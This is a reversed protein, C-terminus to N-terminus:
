RDRRKLAILDEACRSIWRYQPKGRAPRIETGVGDCRRCRSIIAQGGDEREAEYVFQIDHDESGHRGCCQCNPAHVGQEM